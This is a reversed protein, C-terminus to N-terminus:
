NIRLSIGVGKLLIIEILKHLDLRMVMRRRNRRIRARRGADTAFDAVFRRRASTGTCARADAAKHNRVEANGAERLRPLTNEGIERRAERRRKLNHGFTRDAARRKTIFEATGLKAAEETRVFALDRAFQAAIM